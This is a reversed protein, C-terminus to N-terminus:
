IPFLYKKVKRNSHLGVRKKILCAPNGGVVNMSEVNKTVVSGPLVVAGKAITVGPMVLVNAFLIVYDEIIVEAGKTIFNSDNIDHGLTYIKTDHAIVVNNGITIGRRNDLYCGSNVITNNGIKLKGFSFFRVAQISTNKGIKFGVVKMLFKRLGFGFFISFLFNYLKLLIYFIQLKITKSM